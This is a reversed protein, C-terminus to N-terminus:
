RRSDKKWKVFEAAERELEGDRQKKKEMFRKKELRSFTKKIRRVRRAVMGEANRKKPGRQMSENGM